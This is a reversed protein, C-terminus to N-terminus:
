LSFLSLPPSQFILNSRQLLSLPRPFRSQTLTYARRLEELDLRSITQNPTLV